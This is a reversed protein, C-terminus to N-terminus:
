TKGLQSLSFEKRGTSHSEKGMFEEPSITRYTDDEGYQEVKSEREDLM